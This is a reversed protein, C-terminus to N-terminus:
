FSVAEGNDRTSYARWITSSVNDSVLRASGDLLATIVGATHWSRAARLGFSTAGEESAYDNNNAICDYVRENPLYYHNYSACRYEGTAWTFGRRYDVNWQTVTACPPDSIASVSGAYAYNTRYDDPDNSTGEDGTGLTSESLMITNSTGDVIASFPLKERATFPGDTRWLSGLFDDNGRKTGTGTCFVYNTPGPENVGYVSATVPKQNDSPCLFSKVTAGVAERNPATIQFTSPDFTPEKLDMSQYINTQELYPSLEALASWSWLYPLQLYATPPFTYGKPIEATMAAPLVEKSSEHNHVALAIQKMNNTCQTRRAAERAAQVAPLLLAILVGIIAIVVLLEVLTFANKFAPNTNKMVPSKREYTLKDM